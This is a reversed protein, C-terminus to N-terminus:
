IPTPRAAPGPGRRIAPRRWSARLCGTFSSVTMSDGQSLIKLREVHKPAFDHMLRIRITGKSTEMVLTQSPDDHGALAPASYALPLILPLAALLAPFRITM